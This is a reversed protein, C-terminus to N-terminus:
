CTIIAPVKRRLWQFLSQGQTEIQAQENRCIDRAFEHVQSISIQRPYFTLDRHAENPNIWGLDIGRPIPVVFFQDLPNIDQGVTHNPVFPFIAFLFARVVRQTTPQAGRSLTSQAWGHNPASLKRSTAGNFM